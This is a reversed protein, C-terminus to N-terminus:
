ARLGVDDLPEHVERAEALERGGVRAARRVRRRAVERAVGGGDGLGLQAVLVGAGGRAPATWTM